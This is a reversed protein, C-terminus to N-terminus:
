HTIVDRFFKEPIQDLIGLLPKKSDINLLIQGNIPSEIGSILKVLTSKGAGNQGTIGLCSM